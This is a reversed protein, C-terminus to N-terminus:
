SKSFATSESGSGWLFSIQLHATRLCTCWAVPASPTTSGSLRSRCGLHLLAVHCALPVTTQLLVVHSMLPVTTQLLVVHRMLQVTAQLLVDHCMLPVATQLLQKCSICSCGTISSQTGSGGQNGGRFSAVCLMRAASCAPCYLLIHLEQTSM